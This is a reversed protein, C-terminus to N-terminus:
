PSGRSPPRVTFLIDEMAVPPESNPGTEEALRKITELEELAKERNGLANYADSLGKHAPVLGPALKIAELLRAVADRYEKRAMSIKGALLFMYPDRSTLALAQGIANQAADLEEPSSHLIAQALYYYAEPTDAGLAIATDLAQRAQLSEFRTELLIGKVLYPRDWEPWREQIKSLMKESEQLRGLLNLTVARALLLERQDPLIRTAQDLLANAERFLKHKLLFSSAESYLIARTPATRIGDNLAEAADRTKGQADLIQARLLYYDGRRQERPTQDLVRLAADPGESHFVAIALDIRADQRRGDLALARELFPRAERYREFDLLMRGSQSLLDANLGDMGLHQLADLGEQEHGQAFLERALAIRLRANAPDAASQQRLNALHRARLEAPPLSLYEVLGLRHAVTDNQKDAARLSALVQGAEQTRGLAILARRYHLLVLTSGPDISRARELVVAADSLRNMALYAQGLRALARVDNREKRICLELDAIAAAANDEEELNLLARAYRAQYLAPDLAVAKDLLALSKPQDDSIHAIALEFHVTGENPHRAAYWELDRLAGKSESLCALDFGRERRAVDDGPRLKLYRDYAAASDEYFGLQASVQALLLIIEAQDPALKDAQSLLAAAKVPEGRKVYVTALTVVTDADAPKERLAIELVGQARELHGARFSALGLNYLIAFNRPDTDLARAFSQEAADYLKCDARAMGTAFYVPAGGGPDSDFKALIGESEACRGALAFARARLLQVAPDSALEPTLHALYAIAAAGQRDEVSMQALQLNANGHQPDVAVTKFFLERARARDGAALYHNAANNLVQASKPALELARRYYGESAKYKQAADLVAGMLVVASTDNPHKELYGTLIREADGTRGAQYAAVAQDLVTQQALAVFSVFLLLALITFREGCGSFVVTRGNDSRRVKNLKWSV